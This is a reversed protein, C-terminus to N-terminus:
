ACSRCKLRIQPPPLSQIGNLTICRRTGRQLGAALDSGRQPPVASVSRRGSIVPVTAFSHTGQSGKRLVYLVM